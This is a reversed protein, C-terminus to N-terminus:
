PVSNDKHNLDFNTKMIQLKAVFLERQRQLEEESMPKNKEMAEELLPKKLYTSKAKRGGFVHEVATFVASEVYHGFMWMKEDETERKIKEAEYFAKLGNPTLHWFLDYPVGIALAEPM